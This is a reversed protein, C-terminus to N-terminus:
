GSYGSCDIFKIKNSDDEMFNWDSADNCGCATLFEYFKGTLEKGWDHVFQGVVKRSIDIAGCHEDIITDALAMDKNSIDFFSCEDFMAEAYYIPYDDISCLYKTQAVLNGVGCQEAYESCIEETKCYDWDNETSFGEPLCEAAYQFESIEKADYNSYEGLFPIKIVYDDIGKFKLVLKSAGHLVNEIDDINDYIWDIDGEPYEGSDGFVGVMNDFDFSNLHKIVYRRLNDIDM